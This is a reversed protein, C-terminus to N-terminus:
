ECGLSGAYVAIDRDDAGASGEGIHTVAEEGPARLDSPVGGDRDEIGDDHTIGGADQDVIGFPCHRSIYIGILENDLVRDYGASGFGQIIRRGCGAPIGGLDQIPEVSGATAVADQRGIVFDLQGCRIIIGARVECGLCAGREEAAGAKGM